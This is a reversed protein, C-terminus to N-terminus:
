VNRPQILLGISVTGPPWTAESKTYNYYKYLKLSKQVCKPKHLAAACPSQQKKQATYL